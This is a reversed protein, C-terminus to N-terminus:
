DAERWEVAVEGGLVAAARMIYKLNPRRISKQFFRGTGALRDLQVFSMSCTAARRRISDLARDEFVVLHPERKRLGLHRAKSKIRSLSMSPFLLMLEADLVNSEWALQLRKVGVNTWLERRRVVGLHGARNKLAALSRHSLARTMCRYDPYTSRVLEDEESSWRERRGCTSKSVITDPPM